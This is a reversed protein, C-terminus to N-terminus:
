VAGSFLWYCSRFRKLINYCQLKNSSIISDKVASIMLAKMLYTCKVDLYTHKNASLKRYAALDQLSSPEKFFGESCVHCSEVMLQLYLKSHHFAFFALIIWWLVEHVATTFLSM